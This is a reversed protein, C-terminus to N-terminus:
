AVKAAPELWARIPIRFCLFFREAFYLSPRADGLAWRSVYAQTCGIADAMDSQTHNKLLKELMQRGKTDYPGIM